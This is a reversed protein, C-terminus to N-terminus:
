LPTENVPYDRQREHFSINGDEENAKVKKVRIASDNMRALVM